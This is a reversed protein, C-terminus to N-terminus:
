NQFFRGFSLKYRLMRLIVLGNAKLRDEMELVVDLIEAASNEQIELGKEFYKDSHHCSGIGSQIIEQYILYRKENKLWLKKPIFLDHVFVAAGMRLTFYGRQTLVEVAPLYNLIHCDQYDHYSWSVHSFVSQLYASGRSSFCVFRAEKNISQVILKNLDVRLVQV